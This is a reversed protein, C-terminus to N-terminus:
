SPPRGEARTHRPRGGGDPTAKSRGCDKALHGLGRCRLCCPPLRCTVVRHSLSLCNFCRGHFQAPTRPAHAHPSPGRRPEVPAYAPGVELRPLIERWGDANPAFVRRRTGLRQHAPVRGDVPRAPLGHVLQPHPLSRRRQRRTPRKGADAGGRGLVDTSRIQARVPSVTAPRSPRLAAELYSRTQPRVPPAPAPKARRCSAELYTVPHDDDAEESDEDAWRRSKSRGGLCGPLFPAAAPSLSSSPANPSTTGLGGPTAVANWADLGLLPPSWTGPSAGETAAASGPPQPPMAHVATVPGAQELVSADRCCLAVAAHPQPDEAAPETVPPTAPPPTSPAALHLVDHVGAGPPLQEAPEM